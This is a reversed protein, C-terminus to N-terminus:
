RNRRLWQAWINSVDVSAGRTDRADIYLAFPGACLEDDLARLPADGHEGVDRGIVVLTVVHPRPRGLTMTSHLGKYVRPNDTVDPAHGRVRDQDIHHSPSVRLLWRSSRRARCPRPPTCCGAVRSDRAAARHEARAAPSRATSRGPRAAAATRSGRLPPPATCARLAATPGARAAATPAASRATRSGPPPAGCRSGPRPRSAAPRRRAPTSRM